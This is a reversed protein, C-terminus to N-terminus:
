TQHDVVSSIPCAKSGVQQRFTLMLVLSRRERAFVEKRRTQLTAHQLAQSLANLPVSDLAGLENLLFDATAEDTNQMLREMVLSSPVAMKSLSKFIVM